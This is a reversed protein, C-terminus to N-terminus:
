HYPKKLRIGPQHRKQSVTFPYYGAAIIPDIHFVLALSFGTAADDALIDAHVVGATVPANVAVGVTEGAACQFVLIM